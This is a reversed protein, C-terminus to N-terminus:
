KPPWEDGPKVVTSLPVAVTYSTGGSRRITLVQRRNIVFRPGDRAGISGDSVLGAAVTPFQDVCSRGWTEQYTSDMQVDCRMEIGM